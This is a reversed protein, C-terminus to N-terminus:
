LTSTTQRQTDEESDLTSKQESKTSAMETVDSDLNCATRQDGSSQADSNATIRLQHINISLNNRCNHM